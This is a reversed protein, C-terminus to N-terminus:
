TPSLQSANIAIIDRLQKPIRVRSIILDLPGPCESDGGVGQKCLKSYSSPEGRWRRVMDMAPALMSQSSPELAGGGGGGGGEVGEGHGNSTGAKVSKLTRTYDFTFLNHVSSPHTHRGIANVVQFTLHCSVCVERM